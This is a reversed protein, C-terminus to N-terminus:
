IVRVVKQYLMTHQEDINWDDHYHGFYWHKFKLDKNVTFLFNTIFDHEFSPNIRYLINDPASHTIVYDVEWNAKDLNALANNCEEMTPMEQKWWSINETRRYRDISAAGGMVFIKKNDITYVEGRMLHIIHPTIFQVKGGNWEVVEYKEMKNFNEHNGDVFLTTFPKNEFYDLTPKDSCNIEMYLEIDLDAIEPHNQKIRDFTNKRNENDWWVGGFDGAIIVYDDRTLKSQEKFFSPSLKLVDEKGHTDGTVFIM